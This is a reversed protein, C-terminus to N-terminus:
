RNVGQRFFSAPLSSYFNSNSNGTMDLKIASKRVESGLFKWRMFYLCYNTVFDDWFVFIKSQSRSLPFLETAKSFYSNSFPSSDM